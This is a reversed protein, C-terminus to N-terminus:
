SLAKEIESYGLEQAMEKAVKGAYTGAKLKITKDIGQNVLWEVVELQDGEVAGHLASLLTLILEKVCVKVEPAAEVVYRYGNIETVQNLEAGGARLHKL